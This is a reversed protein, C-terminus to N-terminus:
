KGAQTNGKLFLWDKYETAHTSSVVAVFAPLARPQRLTETEPRNYIGIIRGNQQLL